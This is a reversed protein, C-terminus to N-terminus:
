NLLIKQVQDILEEHNSFVKDAGAEELSKKEVYTAVAWCELGAEKASKVGLPANEIVVAQEKEVELKEIGKLFPEPHPKKEETDEQTVVVDFVGQFYEELFNEVTKRNSGTVLGLEFNEQLQNLLDQIGPFPKVNEIKDFIERKRKVLEDIIEGPMDVGENELLTSLAIKAGEGELKYIDDKDIPVGLEGLAKEFSRAHYKMTDVLVGDMDFLLGKVKKSM